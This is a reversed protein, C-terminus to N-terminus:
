LHMMASRRALGRPTHATFFMIAEGLRIHPRVASQSEKLNFKNFSALNIFPISAMIMFVSAAWEPEGLYVGFSADYNSFGGTSCTALTHVVADFGTMGLLMSTISCAGTMLLYITTM